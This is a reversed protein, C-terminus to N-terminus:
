SQTLSEFLSNFQELCEGYFLDKKLLDFTSAIQHGHEVWFHNKLEPYDAFVLCDPDIVSDVFVFPSLSLGQLLRHSGPLLAQLTPEGVVLQALAKNGIKYSQHVPYKPFYSLRKAGKSNSVEGDYGVFAKRLNNACLAELREQRFKSRANGIYCLDFDYSKPFYGRGEIVGFMHTWLPLHETQDPYYFGPPPEPLLRKMLEWDQGCFMVKLDEHQKFEIPLAFFDPDNFILRVPKDKPLVFPNAPDQKFCSLWLEDYKYGLDEVMIM